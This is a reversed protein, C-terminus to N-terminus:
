AASRAARLPLIQGHVRVVVTALLPVVKAPAAM